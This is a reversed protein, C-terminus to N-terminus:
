SANCLHLEPQTETTSQPLSLPLRARQGPSCPHLPSICCVSADLATPWAQPETGSHWCVQPLIPPAHPLCLGQKWCPFCHCSTQSGMTPCPSLFRGTQQQCLLCSHPFVSAALSLLVKWMRSGQLAWIIPATQIAFGRSSCACCEGVTREPRQPWIIGVWTAPNLELALLTSQSRSAMLAAWSVPQSPLQSGWSRTDLGRHLEIGLCPKVLTLAFVWSQHKYHYPVKAGKSTLRSNPVHLLYYAIAYISSWLWLM